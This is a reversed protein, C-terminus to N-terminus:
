SRFVSMSRSNTVACRLMRSALEVFHSGTKGLGCRESPRSSSALRCAKNLAEMQEQRLAPLEDTVKRYCRWIALSRSTGMPPLVQVPDIDMATQGASLYIASGGPVSAM